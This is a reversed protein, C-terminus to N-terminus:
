RGTEVLHDPRLDLDFTRAVRLDDAYDLEHVAGAAPDNVYARSTDVEITPPPGDGEGPPEDLLAVSAQEEGTDVAVSRLTGDPALALLAAGDATAAAATVPGTEVRSLSGAALDVVLVDADGAPATLVDSGPRHTFEAPREDAPVEDPYPLLEGDFAGDEEGVLLIGDGCGFVAGRHTAASGRPEACPEAVTAVREGDPGHVAVGEPGPVLVHGAHPVAPAAPDPSVDLAVADPLTGDELAERDLLLAGGDALSLVAADDDGVVGSAADPVAGLAAPDTRYYHAHDGHDVTWTGGDVVHVAGDATTLYAFRDDAVLADVGGAAEAADIPHVDETALDVVAAAGTEAEAVVLRTQPEAAEEAGEVYGHPVQEEAQESEEAASSADQDGDGACGALLLGAALAAAAATTPTRAIM